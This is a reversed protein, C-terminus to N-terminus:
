LLRADACAATLVAGAGARRGVTGAAPALGLLEGVGVVPDAVIGALVAFELDDVGGDGESHVGTDSGGVDDAADSEPLVGMTVVVRLGDSQEAARGGADLLV